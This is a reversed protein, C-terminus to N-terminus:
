CNTTSSVISVEKGNKTFFVPIVHRFTSDDKVLDFKIGCGIRDGSDCPQGFARGKGKAKYLRVIFNLRNPFNLEFITQGL